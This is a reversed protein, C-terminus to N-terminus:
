ENEDGEDYMDSEISYCIGLSEYTADDPVLISEEDSWDGEIDGSNIDANFREAVDKNLTYHINVYGDTGGAFMYLQKM